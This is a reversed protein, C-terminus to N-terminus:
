YRHTQIGPSDHPSSWPSTVPQEKKRRSSVVCIARALLNSGLWVKNLSACGLMLFNAFGFPAANFLVCGDGVPPLERKFAAGPQLSGKTFTLNGLTNYHGMTADVAVVYNPKPIQALRQELNKAHVPDDLTGIVNQFGINKLLTGTLPGFCDGTSLDSGICLYSIAQDGLPLMSNLLAIAKNLGLKDAYHVSGINNAM